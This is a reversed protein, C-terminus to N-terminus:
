SIAGTSVAGREPAGAGLPLEAEVERIVEIMQPTPRISSQAVWVVAASALVAWALSAWPHSFPVFPVLVVSVVVASIAASSGTRSAFSRM